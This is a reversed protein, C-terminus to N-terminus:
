RKKEKDKQLWFTSIINNRSDPATIAPGPQEQQDGERAGVLKMLQEHRPPRGREGVGQSVDAARQDPEAQQRSPRRRGM